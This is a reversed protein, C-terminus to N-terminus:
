GTRTSIIFAEYIVKVHITSTNELAEVFRYVELLWLGLRLDSSIQRIRQITLINQFESLDILTKVNSWIVNDPIDFVQSFFCVLIKKLNGRLKQAVPRVLKSRAKRLKTRSKIM